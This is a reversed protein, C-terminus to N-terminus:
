SGAAQLAAQLAALRETIPPLTTALDDPDAREVRLSVLRPGPATLIEPAAARWTPEDTFQAATPLGAGRALAPYDVGAAAAALPQGGTVEYIGNDLVVVTLNEAGAAAVTVLAGLNMMLAGDGTVVVVHLHKQALAIGLGLSVAGGMTSPNYHFDLPHEALRPWVRASGQNTVILTRSDRWEALVRLAARVTIRVTTRQSESM